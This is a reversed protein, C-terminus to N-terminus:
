YIIGIKFIWKPRFHSCINIHYGSRDGRHPPRSELISRTFVTTTFAATFWKFTYCYSSTHGHRPASWVSLGNTIRWNNIQVQKCHPQETSGVSVAVAAAFQLQCDVLKQNQINTININQLNEYVFM